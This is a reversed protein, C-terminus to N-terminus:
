QAYVDLSLLEQKTPLDVVTTVRVTQYRQWGAPSNLPESRISIGRGTESRGMVAVYLAENSARVSLRVPNHQSNKFKFDTNGYWVTADRGPPVSDVRRSHPHREVIALGALATANYVTSSVQCIGGGISTVLDREMYAFADRYGREPTRPGVMQNFSFTEGPEVVVGDLAMAAQRINHRQADTRYALSTRYFAIEVQFSRNQWLTAGLALLALTPAAIAVGVKLKGTM